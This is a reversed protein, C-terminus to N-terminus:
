SMVDDLSKRLATLSARLRVIESDLLDTPPVSMDNQGDTLEGDAPGDASIEDLPVHFNADESVVAAAAAAGAATGGRSRTISPMTM